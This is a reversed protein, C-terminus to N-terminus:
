STYLKLHYQMAKLERLLMPLTSQVTEQKRGSPCHELTTLIDMLREARILKAGEL